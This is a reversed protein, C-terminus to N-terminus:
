TVRPARNPFKFSEVGKDFLTPCHDRGHEHKRLAPMGQQKLFVFIDIHAVRLLSVLVWLQQIGYINVQLVRFFMERHM